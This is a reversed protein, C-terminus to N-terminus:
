APKLAARFDRLGRRLSRQWAPASRWKLYYPIAFDEFFTMWRRASAEVSYEGSRQNGVAVMRQRLEPDDRLRRLAALAEATSTVEIFDDETQRLARFASEPGLVAPVGALWANTLKSPPKRLHRGMAMSRIAIVADVASYDHWSARDFMPLFNLGMEELAKRWEDTKLEPALNQRAGVFAINEFRDGRQMDRPILGPQPWYPLHYSPGPMLVLELFDKGAYHAQDANQVVHMHAPHNRGYDARICILMTRENTVRRQPLYQSHSLVIGEDPIRTTVNVKFGFENLAVATFYSWVNAGGGFAVWNDSLSKPWTESYKDPPVYFYIEPKSM